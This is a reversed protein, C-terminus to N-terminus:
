GASFSEIRPKYSMMELTNLLMLIYEFAGGEAGGEVLTASESEGGWVQEGGRTKM